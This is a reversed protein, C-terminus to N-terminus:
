AVKREFSKVPGGVCSKVAYEDVHMTDVQKPEVLLYLIELLSYCRPDLRPLGVRSRFQATENRWRTASRALDAMRIAM